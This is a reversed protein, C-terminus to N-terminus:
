AHLRCFKLSRDLFREPRGSCEDFFQSDIM